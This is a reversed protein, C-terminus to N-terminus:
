VFLTEQDDGPREQRKEPAGPRKTTEQADGPRRAWCGDYFRAGCSVGLVGWSVGLVGGSWARSASITSFVIPERKNKRNTTVAGRLSWSPGVHGLLAGLPSKPAIQFTIHPCSPELIEDRLWKTNFDSLPVFCKCKYDWLAKERALSEYAHFPFCDLIEYSM